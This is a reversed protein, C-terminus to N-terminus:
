IHRVLASILGGHTVAVIKEGPQRDAIQNVFALGRALLQHTSEGGPVVYDPSGARYDRSIEPYAAQVEDGLMGQVIGFHKERLRQDLVIAHNTLAAIARAMQQTRVLDSSYLTTFTEHQLRNAVAQTQALGLPTLPSDMQGQLREEVNWATEGHRVLIIETTPM